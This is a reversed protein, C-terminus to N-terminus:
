FTLTLTTSYSFGNFVLYQTSIVASGTKTMTKWDNNAYYTVTRSATLTYSETNAHTGSTNSLYIVGNKVLDSITVTEDAAVYFSKSVINNSEVVNAHVYFNTPGGVRTVTLTCTPIPTPTQAYIFVQSLGNYGSDPLITQTSDSPYATKSQLNIAKVTVKSLGSYNSDPTIIQQSTSPTVTKTQLPKSEEATGTVKFGATSTFTKGSAVDAATATGFDSPNVLTRTNKNAAVYYAYTVKDGTVLVKPTGNISVGSPTGNAYALEGTSSDRTWSAISGTVKSGNVYATRGSLIDAATADADSTNITGSPVANVTVKSLGDYGSDPTVNQVSTSPTATKTQLAIAGVTVKSLGDYGSDPTVNQVSTTPAVTKEQLVAETGSSSVTTIAQNLNSITKDAPVTGGMSAITDYCTAVSSEVDHIANYSDTVAKKIRNIEQVIGQEATSM